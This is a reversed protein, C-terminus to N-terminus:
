EAVAEAKAQDQKEIEARVEDMDLDRVKQILEELASTPLLGHQEALLINDRLVLLTPISRIRFAAALGQQAETDIKGFKIDPHKAAAAEFIPGFARCPGCWAAWFDLLVIGDAVTEAFNSETVEFTKGAM